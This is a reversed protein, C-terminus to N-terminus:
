RCKEDGMEARVDITADCQERVVLLSGDNLNSKTLREEESPMALFSEPERDALDRYGGEPASGLWPGKRSVGGGRTRRVRARGRSSSNTRM